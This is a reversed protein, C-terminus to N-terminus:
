KCLERLTLASKKRDLPQRNHLYFKNLCSLTRIKFLRYHKFPLKRRVEDVLLLDM